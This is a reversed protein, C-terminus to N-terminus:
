VRDRQGRGRGGGPAPNKPAPPNKPPPPHLAHKYVYIPGYSSTHRGSSLLIMIHGSHASSPVTVVLGASTQRLRSAPSVRSINAGPSKPFAVVMSAKLGIGALLLTGHTSVQHPNGSCHATPVCSVSTIRVSIVHPSAPGSKAPAGKAAGGGAASTGGANAAMAPLPRAALMASLVLVVATAIFSLRKHADTSAM